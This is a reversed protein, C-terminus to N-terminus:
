RVIRTARRRLGGLLLGLLVLHLWGGAGPAASCGCGDDSGDGSDGGAGGGDGGGTTAVCQFDLPCPQTSGADDNLCLRTESDSVPFCATNGPCADDGADTCDITCVNISGFAQCTTGNEGCDSDSECRTCVDCDVEAAPSSGSGAGEGDEDMCIYTSPCAGSPADENLCIRHDFGEAAFCGANTPCDEDSDCATICYTRIGYLQCSGTDCDDDSNCRRCVDCNGQEPTESGGGAVVCDGTAPDVEQGAPCSVDGTPILCQYDAPCAGGGQANDNFCVNATGGGQIGVQFCASNGPCPEDDDCGFICRGGGGDQLDLCQGGPCDAASTCSNCVDCEEYTRSRDPICNGTEGDCIMNTACQVGDCPNAPTGGGAGGSRCTYSPPCFGGSAADPNLCLNVTQGGQIPVTFCASDGPCDGPASCQQTCFNQGPVCFGGPGCDTNSSCTACILCDTDIVCNGDVCVEDSACQNDSTCPPLFCAGTGLNCEERGPCDADSSCPPVRCIGDICVEGPLGCDGDSTCTCDRPYLTCVGEEDDPHLTRAGTGGQYAFYMTAQPIPSHDLGLWHGAEHTTIAQLDTGRGSTVFRFGVANFVMEARVINCGQFQPRVFAITQNQSGWDSPWSDEVFAMMRDQISFRQPTRTTTEGETSRWGSCCPRGWEAWSDRFVRRVEDFPIRSYGDVNINYTNPIQNGAWVSYTDPTRCGRNDLPEWALAVSSFAILACVLVTGALSLRTMM